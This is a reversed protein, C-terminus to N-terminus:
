VHCFEVGLDRLHPPLTRAPDEFRRSDAPLAAAGHQFGTSEVCDRCSSSCCETSVALVESATVKM